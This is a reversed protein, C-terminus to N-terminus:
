LVKETASIKLWRNSEEQEQVGNIILSKSNVVVKMGRTPLKDSQYLVWIDYSAESTVQGSRLQESESLQRVYAWLSFSTAYTATYGGAGDATKTLTQFAARQKLQGIKPPM